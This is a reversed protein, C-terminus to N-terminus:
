EQMLRAMYEETSILGSRNYRFIGYLCEPDRTIYNPREYCTLTLRIGCDRLVPLSERSIAGFPYAFVIPMIGCNESLETRLMGTDETFARIYDELSEDSNRTCGYRGNKLSHMDYTHCGIEIRGSSSLRRIDEWTLYSYADTHPDAPAIHDTYSGVVSIVACMDYKELLPLYVSLNNYYGDDLTIMVPKEPLEGIGSTYDCLQQASVTTYGHSSLWRLDSEAQEPTVIYDQPTGDFISHYMIVPLFVSAESNEDASSFFLLKGLFFFVVCLSFILIDMVLMIGLRMLGSRQEM